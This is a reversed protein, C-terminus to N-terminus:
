DNIYEEARPMIEIALDFIAEFMVGLRRTGDRGNCTHQSCTEQNWNYDVCGDWKVTGGVLLDALEINTTERLVGDDEKGIFLWEGSIKAGYLERVEFVVFIIDGNTGLPQQARARVHLKNDIVKVLWAAETVPTEGATGSTMKDTM